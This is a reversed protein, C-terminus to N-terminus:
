CGVVCVDLVRRLLLDDLLGEAEVEGLGVGAEGDFEGAAYAQDGAVSRPGV